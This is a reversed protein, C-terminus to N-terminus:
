DLVERHAEMDAKVRRTGMTPESSIALWLQLDPMGTLQVYGAAQEEHGDGDPDNHSWTTEAVLSWLSAKGSDVTLVLRPKTKADIVSLFYQVDAFAQGPKRELVGFSIPAAGKANDSSRHGFWTFTGEYGLIQLGGRAKPV